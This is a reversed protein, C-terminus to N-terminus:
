LKPAEVKTSPKLKIFYSTEMTSVRISNQGNTEDFVVAKVAEYGKCLDRVLGIAIIPEKANNQVLTKIKFYQDKRLRNTVPVEDNVSEPRAM